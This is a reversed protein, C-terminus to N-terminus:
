PKQTLEKNLQEIIESQTKERGQLYEVVVPNKSKEIHKKTRTNQLTLAQLIEKIHKRSETKFM